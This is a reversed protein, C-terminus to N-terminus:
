CAGRGVLLAPITRLLIVFDLGLSWNDVYQLDLAMWDAFRLHNRGGIQWLCTLGPRMSLRRRHAGTLERTEILPLPRPGVLSMQGLAVNLLQPLEDISTRRLWYGIRTVRPDDSLKFVPGDMQNSGLLAAREGEAGLRMTRFKLMKFPRGNLGGRQQIFLAPGRSTLKILAAVLILFPLLALLGSTALARDMLAKIL